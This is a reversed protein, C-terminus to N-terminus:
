LFPTKIGVEYFIMFILHSLTNKLVLQLVKCYHSKKFIIMRITITEQRKIYFTNPPISQKLWSLPPQSGVYAMKSIYDKALIISIYIANRNYDETNLNVAEKM